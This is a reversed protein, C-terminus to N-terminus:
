SFPLLLVIALIWITTQGRKSGTKKASLLFSLPFSLLFFSISFSISLKPLNQLFQKGKRDHYIRSCRCCSETLSFDLHFSPSPARMSGKWLCQDHPTTHSLQYVRSLSCSSPTRPSLTLKPRPTHPHARFFSSTSSRLGGYLTLM